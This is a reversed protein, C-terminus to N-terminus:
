EAQEGSASQVHRTAFGEVTMRRLAGVEQDLRDAYQLYPEAAEPLNLRIRREAMRRAFAVKEEMLRIASWLANELSQTQEALLAKATFAHGIHCRFRLPEDEGVQWLSGNCAPCTFTTRSGIEEVGKLLQETNMQQEAVNAEIEMDWPIAFTDEEAAPEEVLRILVSAIEALPLTYDINVFSLANSPMSPYEADLPDQVVAVGGRRKIAQLGVTGDDLLGTLVVGVVRPGYSRAASRFLSDIAPRFRNERPGRVVRVHERNVLLHYDPPAVYIVGRRIDEGDVGHVAPLASVDSLIAPLLSVHDASLHQVVFLSAQLDAPLRGFIVSLAKLGGASAGLVIIDHGQM